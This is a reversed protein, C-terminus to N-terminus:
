FLGEKKCEKWDGVFYEKIVKRDEEDIDVEGYEDKLCDVVEELGAEVYEKRSNFDGGFLGNEVVNLCMEEIQFRKLKLM